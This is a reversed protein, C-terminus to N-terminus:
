RIDAEFGSSFVFEGQRFAAVILATEDGSRANDRQNAIGTATGNHTIDPNSFHAVRTCGSTCQNSYSMVTRYSGDDFHGFSWPFSASAPSTGNAPDHEFGMNHGHEHAYSLNGVACQRATVQFASGGFGPGPNRMVFGIGCFGGGDETILSVLDARQTDRLSAVAADGSLWVLDASSDGTDNYAALATHVLVFRADMDSDIFATNSNDVAAQITAEIQAVGGAADRAQPTYMAMVDMVSGSPAAGRPAPSATTVADVGGGCSPFADLDLKLLEHQGDSGPRIEYVGDSSEIRGAIMGGKLTLVVRLDERDDLWGRWTLNDASRFELSSRAALYRAGDPMAFELRDAGRALMSSELEVLHAEVVGPQDVFARQHAALFDAGALSSMGCLVAVVYFTRFASHM